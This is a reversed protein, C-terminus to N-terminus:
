NLQLEHRRRQQQLPFSCLSLRTNLPFFFFLILLGKMLTSSAIFSRHQVKSSTRLSRELLITLTDFRFPFLFFSIHFFALFFHQQTFVRVNCKGIISDSNNYHVSVSDHEDGIYLERPHYSGMESHAITDKPSWFWLGKYRVSEGQEKQQSTM